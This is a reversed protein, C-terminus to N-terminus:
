GGRFYFAPTGVLETDNVQWRNGPVPAPVPTNRRTRVRSAITGAAPNASRISKIINRVSPTDTWKVRLGPRIYSESVDVVRSDLHTTPARYQSYANSAYSVGTGLLGGVLTGM